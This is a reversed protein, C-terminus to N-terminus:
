LSRVASLAFQVGVTGPRLLHFSSKLFDDMVCDPCFLNISSNDHFALIEGFLCLM